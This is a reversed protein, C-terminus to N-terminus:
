DFYKLCQSQEYLYMKLVSGFIWFFVVGSVFLSFISVHIKGQILIFSVFYTKHRYEQKNHLSCSLQLILYLM